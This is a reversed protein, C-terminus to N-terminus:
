LSTIDTAFKWELLPVATTSIEPSTAFSTITPKALISYIQHYLTNSTVPLMIHHPLYTQLKNMLASRSARGKGPWNM